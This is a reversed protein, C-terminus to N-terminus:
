WSSATLDSIFRLCLLGPQLLTLLVFHDVRLRQDRLKGIALMEGAAPPDGAIEFAEWPERVSAM